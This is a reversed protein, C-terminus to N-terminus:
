SAFLSTQISPLGRRPERAGTRSPPCVLGGRERREALQEFVNQLCLMRVTGRGIASAVLYGARYGAIDGSRNHIMRDVVTGRVWAIGIDSDPSAPMGLPEGPVGLRSGLPLRMLVVSAPVCRVPGSSGRVVRDVGRRRSRGVGIGRLSAGIRRVADMQPLRDARDGLRRGLMGSLLQMVRESLMACLTLVPLDVLKGFEDTGCLVWQLRAERRHM